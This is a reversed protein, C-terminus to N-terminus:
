DTTRKEITIHLTSGPYHLAWDAGVSVLWDEDALAVLARLGEADLSYPEAVFLERTSGDKRKRVLRYPHDIWGSFGHQAFEWSGDSTREVAPQGRKPRWARLSWSGHIFASARLAGLVASLTRELTDYEQVTLADIAADTLDGARALTNPAQGARRSSGLLHLVYRSLTRFGRRDTM